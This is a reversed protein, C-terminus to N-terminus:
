HIPTTKFGKLQLLKLVGNPGPLHGAGIAAFVSGKKAFLEISNAMTINRDDLLKKLFKSDYHSEYMTKYLGELDAKSYLEILKKLLEEEDNKNSTLAEYLNKVQQKIPIANLANLQDELKELGVISKNNEKAIKLLHMDLFDEKEQNLLKDGIMNQIFIPKMKAFPALPMGTKEKFKDQVIKYKKKSYYNKLSKNEPLYIVSLMAFPNISDMNVELAFFKTNQIAPILSDSFQFARPDKVHMTGYIYSPEKADPHEIKWLLSQSYSIFPLWATLLFFIPRIQFNSKFNM